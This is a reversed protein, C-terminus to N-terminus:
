RLVNGDLSEVDAGLLNAFRRVEQARPPAFAVRNGDQRRRLCLGILGWVFWQYGSYASPVLGIADVNYMIFALLAAISYVDLRLMLLRIIAVWVSLLLVVYIALGVVGGHFLIQLYDNHAGLAGKGAGFLQRVLPLAHWEKLMEDWVYWRGAFTSQVGGQGQVASIEKVFVFGISDMIQKAYYLAVLIGAGAMAVVTKFKKRLLPWLVAWAVITIVGSKSYAGKIVILAAIGYLILGIQLAVSKRPQLASILLLGMVTQLGYYRITIADHYLGINRVIGEEGYTIKWHFGTSAEYLGTAIPFLGAIALAWAFLRLDKDDKFYAQIMYFGAFGDLHRFLINVGDKAEQSFMIDSSFFVVDASWLIWVWRLPMDRFPRNDNDVFMRVIIILPVAASVIETLKFGFVLTEEWTADVLPRVIFLALVGLRPYLVLSVLAVISAATAVYTLM